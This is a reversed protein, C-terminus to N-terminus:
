GPSPLCDALSTYTERERAAPQSATEGSNKTPRSDGSSTPWVGSKTEKKGRTETSLRGAWSSWSIVWASTFRSGIPRIDRLTIRNEYRTDRPSRQLGAASVSAPIACSLSLYAFGLSYLSVRQPTYLLSTSHASFPLKRTRGDM